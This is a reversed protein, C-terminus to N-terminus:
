DDNEENWLFHLGRSSHVEARDECDQSWSGMHRSSQGWNKENSNGDLWKRVPCEYEKGTNRRILGCLYMMLILAPSATELAWTWTWNLWTGRQHAQTQPHGTKLVRQAVQLQNMMLTPQAKLPVVPLVPPSKQRQWRSGTRAEPTLNPTHDDGQTSIHESRVEVEPSTICTRKIHLCVPSDSPSYDWKGKSPIALCAFPHGLLPTGALPIDPLSSVPLPSTAMPPMPVRSPCPVPLDCPEPVTPCPGSITSVDEDQQTAMTTAESVYCFPVAVSICWPLLKIAETSSVQSLVEQFSADTQDIMQARQRTHRRAQKAWKHECREALEETEQILKCEM